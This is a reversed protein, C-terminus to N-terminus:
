KRFIGEEETKLSKLGKKNSKVTKLAIIGGGM